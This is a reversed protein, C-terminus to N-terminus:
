NFLLLELIQEMDVAVDGEELFSLMLSSEYPEYKGTHAVEGGIIKDEKLYTLQLNHAFHTTQIDM